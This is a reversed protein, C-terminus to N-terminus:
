ITDSKDTQCEPIGIYIPHPKQFVTIYRNASIFGIGLRVSRPLVDLLAGMFTPYRTERTRKIGGGKMRTPIRLRERAADETNFEVGTVAHVAEIICNDVYEAM